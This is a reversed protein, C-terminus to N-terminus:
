ARRNEAPHAGVAARLIGILVLLAAALVVGSMFGKGGQWGWAGSARVSARMPADPTVQLAREFRVLTGSEPITLRLPQFVNTAAKQQAFIKDSITNISAVDEGGLQQRMQTADQIREFQAPQQQETASPMLKQAAPINKLNAQQRQERRRNGLAVVSYDRQYQQLQGQIDANLAVDSESLAQANEMAEWGEKSKGQAIQRKGESFLTKAKDFNVKSISDNFKDYEIVGRSMGGSRLFAEMKGVHDLTGAFDRYSLNEPLYLSWVINRLPLEFRPGEFTQRFSEALTEATPPLGSYVVEVLQEKGSMVDQKLPILVSGGSVATDVFQDGVFISWLTNKEPLRLSLFRESGSVLSIKLRTIARGEKSVVTVIEVNNVQAPLQKATEHSKVALKLSYDPAYYRFCLVANALSDNGFSAPIKRPNFDTVGGTSERLDVQLRDEAFVAIYGKQLEVGEAVVPQIVVDGGQKWPQRYRVRLQCSSEVKRGLEVEWVDPEPNKIGVIGQGSIDPDEIGKPLRLRFLKVGANEISYKIVSECSMIGSAVKATQLSETQIWPSATDFSVELLWDPRVISFAYDRAASKKKTSGTQVVELGQRKVVDMKVGREVTVKLSGSLRESGLVNLKPIVVSRRREKEMKVLAMRINKVGLARQAFHILLKEKGGQATEDWHQIGEGEIKDIDFGEPLELELTFIGVKSIDVALISTMTTKDEEFVVELSEKVRLEPNVAVSKLGIAAKAGEHRYAKKPIAKGMQTALTFDATNVPTM